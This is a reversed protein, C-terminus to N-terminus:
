GLGTSEGHSMAVRMRPVEEERAGSRAKWVDNIPLEPVDVDARAIQREHDRQVPARGKTLLELTRQERQIMVSYDSGTNATVREVLEPEVVTAARHPVQCERDDQPVAPQRGLRPAM